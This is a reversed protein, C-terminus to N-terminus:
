PDSQIKAKQLGKLLNELRHEYEKPTEYFFSWTM